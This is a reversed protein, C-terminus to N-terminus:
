IVVKMDNKEIETSFKDAEETSVKETDELIDSPPLNM